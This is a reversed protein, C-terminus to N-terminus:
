LSGKASTGSLDRRQEAARGIRSMVVLLAFPLALMLVLGVGIPWMLTGGALTFLMQCLLELALTACALSIASAAVLTFPRRRRLHVWAAGAVPLGALVSLFVLSTGRSGYGNAQGSLSWHIPVQAPLGAWSVAALAVFATLVALPAALTAVLIRPPVAGFPVDEGDPSVLHTRVALGGFNITWGVGVAKPVLVRADLPSWSRSAYRGSSKAVRLDYPAGLFRGTGAPPVDGPLLGDADDDKAADLYAAVLAETTGLEALVRVADEPRGPSDQLRDRVHARLDVVADEWGQAGAAMAEVRFRALYDDILAAAELSLGGKASGSSDTSDDSSM